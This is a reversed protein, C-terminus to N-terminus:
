SASVLSDNSAVENDKVTAQLYPLYQIDSECVLRSEGVVADLEDQLKRMVLPNALLESLVWEMTISSTDIGAGFVDKVFVFDQGNAEVYDIGKWMAVVVELFRKGKM